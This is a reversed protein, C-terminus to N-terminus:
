AASEGLLGHQRCFHLLADCCIHPHSVFPLHAAGEVLTVSLAPQLVKLSTAVAVPILRDKEGLIIHVPLELAALDARADVGALQQLGARLSPEPPLKEAALVEHLFRLDAKMSVSGQCQLALFRTLTLAPNEQVAASFGSFLVDPMAAPWDPRQVFCPTAALLCLAQVRSPYHAAIELALLGGLSWGLWIAPSPVLGPLARAVDAWSIDASTNGFGPLDIQTVQFHPTLWPLFTKWVGSHLGWGHLLVLHPAAASNAASCVHHRHFITPVTPRPSTM